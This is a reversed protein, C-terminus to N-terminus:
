GLALHVPLSIETGVTARNTHIKGTYGAFHKNKKRRERKMCKLNVKGAETTFM